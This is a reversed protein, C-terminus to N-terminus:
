SRHTNEAKNKQSERRVQQQLSRDMADVDSYGKARM